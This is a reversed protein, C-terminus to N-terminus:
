HEFRFFFSYEFYFIVVMSVAINWFINKRHQQGHFQASRYRIWNTLNTGECGRLLETGFRFRVTFGYFIIQVANTFYFLVLAEGFKRLNVTSAISVSLVGALIARMILLVGM